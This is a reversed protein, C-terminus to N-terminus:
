GHNAGKIEALNLFEPIKNLFSCFKNLAIPFLEDSGLQEGYNAHGMLRSIDQSTLTPSLSTLAHQAFFHRLHYPVVKVEGPNAKAWWKAMFRRLAKASLPKVTLNEDVLFWMLPTDFTTSSHHRLNIQLFEYRLLALRFYECLWITRYRGKDFVIVSHKDFCYEKKFTIAHTPRTSTLVIFLLALEFVRFNYLERLTELTHKSQEFKQGQLHLVHFFQRVSNVNVQRLSGIYIPPTHIYTRMAASVDYHLSPIEGSTSCLYDQQKTTYRIIQSDKHSIPKPASLLAVLKPDTIAQRLRELYHTQAKFIDYRIKDSDRKQYNFASFHHLKDVGLLVAKAPTTLNPDCQVMKNFHNFLVDKRVLYKGKLVSPTRWKATIFLLFAKKEKINMVWCKEAHKTKTIADSFWHNLGNPIPQWQWSTIGKKTPVAIAYEIWSPDHKRISRLSNQQCPQSGSVIIVDPIDKISKCSVLSGTLWLYLFNFLARDFPAVTASPSPQYLKKLRIIAALLKLACHQANPFPAGSNKYREKSKIVENNM